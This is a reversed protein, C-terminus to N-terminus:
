GNILNITVEDGVTLGDLVASSNVDIIPREVTGAIHRKGDVESHITVVKGAVVVGFADGKKFGVDLLAKGEIWLRPKGRNLGIKRTITNM